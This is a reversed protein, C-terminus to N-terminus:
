LAVNWAFLSTEYCSLVYGNKLHLSPPIYDLNFIENLYTKTRCENDMLHRTSVRQCSMHFVSMFLLYCAEM